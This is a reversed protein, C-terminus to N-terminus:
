SRRSPVPRAASPPRPAAPQVSVRDDDAGPQGAEGPHQVGGPERARGVRVGVVEVAADEHEAAQDEAAEAVADAYDDLTLSDDGAPLDPAVVDHGRAHLEAEVLHWYWGVDGAGHILAFTTM